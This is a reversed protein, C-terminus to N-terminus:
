SDSLIQRQQLHDMVQSLREGLFRHLSRNLAREAEARIATYAVPRIQWVLDSLEHVADNPPLDEGFTDFRRVVIEVLGDAARQVNGRLLRMLDLIEDFSMGLKILQEGADILAPSDTVFKNGQRKLLQLDVAADLLSKNVSRLGFKKVLEPVTYTRPKESAFAQTLARELGLVDSLERGTQWADLLEKINATSYGRDLLGNILDLRALHSRSYVGIRGRKEPGPLIDKDQYARINRVTTRSMQALEDITYEGDRLKASTRQRRPQTRSAM